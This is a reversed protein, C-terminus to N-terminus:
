KQSIKDFIEYINQSFLRFQPSNTLSPTWKKTVGQLVLLPWIERLYALSLCTGYNLIALDPQNNSPWSIKLWPKHWSRPSVLNISVITVVYETLIIKTKSSKSCFNQKEYQTCRCVDRLGLWAFVIKLNPSPVSKQWTEEYTSM